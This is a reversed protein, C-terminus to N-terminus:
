FPNIPCFKSNGPADGLGSILECLFSLFRKNQNWKESKLIDLFELLTELIRFWKM